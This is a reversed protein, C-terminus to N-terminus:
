WEGFGPWQQAIRRYTQHHAALYRRSQLNEARKAMGLRAVPALDLKRGLWKCWYKEWLARPWGTFPM